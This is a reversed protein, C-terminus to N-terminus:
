RGRRSSSLARSRRLRCAASRACRSRLRRRPLSRQCCTFILELREDEIVTDDLEDMTVEPVELQWAKEALTRERRIRDIARNRATVM